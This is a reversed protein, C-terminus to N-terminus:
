LTHISTDRWERTNPLRTATPQPTGNFPAMHASCSRLWAMCSGSVAGLDADAMAHRTTCPARHPRPASETPDHIRTRGSKLAVRADCSAGRLRVTRRDSMRTNARTEVKTARARPRIDSGRRQPTQKACTKYCFSNRWRLFIPRTASPKRDKPDRDEARQTQSTPRTGRGQKKSAGSGVAVDIAAPTVATLRAPGMETDHLGVSCDVM